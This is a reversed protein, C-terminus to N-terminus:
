LDKPIPLSRDAYCDAISQDTGDSARACHLAQAQEVRLQANHAAYLSAAFLALFALLALARKM